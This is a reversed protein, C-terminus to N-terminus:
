ALWKLPSLKTILIIGGTHSLNILKIRVAYRRDANVSVEKRFIDAFKEKISQDTTLGDIVKSPVNKIDYKSKWVKWFTSSDKNYLADNLSDSVVFWEGKQRKKIANRYLLNAKIKDENLIGTRPRGNASWLKHTKMSDARLAEM